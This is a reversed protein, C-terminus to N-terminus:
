SSGPALALRVLLVFSCSSRALRVLLVFAPKEHEEANVDAFVVKVHCQQLGNWPQLGNWRFVNRRGLRAMFYEGVSGSAKLAQM